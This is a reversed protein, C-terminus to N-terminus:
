DTRRVKISLTSKTVGNVSLIKVRLYRGAELTVDWDTLVASDAYINAVTNPNVGAGTVINTFTNYWPDPNPAPPSGIFPPDSKYVEYEIDGAADNKVAWQIIEYNDDYKWEYIQDVAVDSMLVNWTEDQNGWGIVTGGAGDDQSNLQMGPNAPFALRTAVGAAGGIIMDNPALMPNAFDAAGAPITVVTSGDLVNDVVTIGAGVIDIHPHVVGPGGNLGVSVKNPGSHDTDSHVQAHSAADSNLIKDRLIQVLKDQTITDNVIHTGTIVNDAIDEGVITQNVIQNSSISNDAIMAGTISDDPLYLTGGPSLRLHKLIYIREVEVDGYGYIKRTWLGGKSAVVEYAKDDVLAAFEWEGLANSTTAATPVGSVAGTTMDIEFVEVTAANVPDGAENCVKGKLYM